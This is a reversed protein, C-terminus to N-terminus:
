PASGDGQPRNGVQDHNQSFVVWKASSLHNSPNGHRRRRFSSYQGSYVFGDGLAKALHNLARLGSLIGMTRQDSPTCPMIFIMMGNPTWPM